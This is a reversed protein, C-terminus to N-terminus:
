TTVKELTLATAAGQSDPAATLIYFVDSGILARHKTQIQPYPGALLCRRVDRSTTFEDRDEGSTRVQWLTGKLEVHGSLAGWGSPDPDGNPLTAGNHQQITLTTPQFGAISPLLDPSVITGANM